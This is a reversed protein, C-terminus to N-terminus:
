AAKDGALDDQMEKFLRMATPDTLLDLYVRYAGWMISNTMLGMQAHDEPSNENEKRQQNKWEEAGPFTTAMGELTLGKEGIIAAEVHFNLHKFLTKTSVKVIPKDPFPADNASKPEGDEDYGYPAEEDYDNM